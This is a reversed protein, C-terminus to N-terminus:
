VQEWPAYSGLVVVVQKPVHKLRLASLATTALQGVSVAFQRCPQVVQEETAALQHDNAVM